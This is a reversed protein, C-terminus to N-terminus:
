EEVKALIFDIMEQPKEKDKLKSNLHTKFKDFDADTVNLHKHVEYM